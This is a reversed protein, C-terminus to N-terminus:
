RERVTKQYSHGLVLALVNLTVLEGFMDTITSPAVFVLPLYLFPVCVAVWFATKQVVTITRRLGTSLIRLYHQSLRGGLM